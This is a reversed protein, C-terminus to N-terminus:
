DLRDIRYESTVGTAGVVRLHIDGRSSSKQMVLGCASAEEAGSITGKNSFSEITSRVERLESKLTEPFLALGTGASRTDRAGDLIFLVGSGQHELKAGFWSSPQETIANVKRWGVTINWHGVTSGGNYLYWSVPNRRDLRDWQLIPPSEPDEATVLACYNGHAPANLEISRADPLVTRLFKEWTMTQPPIRLTSSPAESKPTLHAFVGGSGEVVLAKPTAKWLSQVEDLRAFRRKLSPALGMQEVLKEAQAINGASPAAQPRQYSLPHMKAAFMRSVDEYPLGKAIDELLSGLMSSRPHCFGAPALAIERWLANERLEGTLTRREESVKLLWEAAGLVKESRYLADSKLLQVATQLMTPTFEGLARAVTNHDERKEAMAQKASKVTRQFVRPNTVAFHHWTCTETRTSRQGLEISESLFVGTVKARRVLRAMAEVASKYLEPADTVDWVAPITRGDKVVVLSGYRQVFTRCCSCNHFQREDAPFSNLYADWLATDHRKYADTTLLPQGATNEAFRKAVRAIYSDYEHDDSNGVRAAAGSTVQSQTEM